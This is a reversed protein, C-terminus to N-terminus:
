EAKINADAIARGYGEYEKRVYAGFESGCTPEVEIGQSVLRSRSEPARVSASFLDALHALTANPTKAPAFLGYWLEVEYDPYGSEAVTPVEPLWEPRHRSGTALARMTGAQLQGAVSPYDLLASDLHGGLIANVAPATGPFPVFTMSANAARQLMAFGVHLVGGFASGYTLAGPKIRAAGLLDALTRYPSASNVAIVTPTTAVRCIPELSGIPDYRVKLLHPTVLFSNNVILVTNGDSKSRIVAEIAIEMAGGPRNEVVVAPGHMRGIGDAMVRAIVDIAGGPPFPVLVKLPGTQASAGSWAAAAIGLVVAAAVHRFQHRLFRM